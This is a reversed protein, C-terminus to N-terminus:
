DIGRKRRQERILKRMEENIVKLDDAPLGSLGRFAELTSEDFVSEYVLEGRPDEHGVARFWRARLEPMESPILLDAIQLATQLSPRMGMNINTFTSPNLGARAAQQRLSVPLLETIERFVDVQTEAM